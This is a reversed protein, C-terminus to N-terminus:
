FEGGRPAAGRPTRWWVRGRDDDTGPPIGLAGLAEDYFKRSAEIDNAGITIHTFM